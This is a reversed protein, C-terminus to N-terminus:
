CTIVESACEPINTSNQFLSVRCNECHKQDAKKTELFIRKRGGLALVNMWFVRPFPGSKPLISVYSEKEQESPSKYM